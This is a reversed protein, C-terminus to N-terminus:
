GASSHIGKSGQLPGTARGCSLYPQKMMRYYISADACYLVDLGLLKDFGVLLECQQPVNNLVDIAFRKQRQHNTSASNPFIVVPINDPLTTNRVRSTYITVDRGLSKLTKAIEICDRQLGGGPFLSVIAFAIRM